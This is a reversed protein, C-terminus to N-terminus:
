KEIVAGGFPKPKVYMDIYPTIINMLLIAFSVGEPYSAFLRFVVTFFGCGVGFIVKGWRSIPSTAYDTAMFIAGLLLGGSLVQYLPNAGFAWSLIAVTGVFTVPIIPNIVRRLVLYVFGILLAIVCTEGMSGPRIGLLMDTISPLADSGAAMTALPTASALEDVGLQYHFPNLWTTMPTAFSIMLFIRGAIAPNVFNQGIGGFLQKAVIIAFACGVVAMWLPFGAPLNLSLLVGTVVASLDGITTDRKMIKRILYEFVVCSAVCVATLLLSGVGFILNSAVIAPVLAIIVDLMIGTTSNKSRVHPSSSVILKNM